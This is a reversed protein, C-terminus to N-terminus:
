QTEDKGMKKIKKMIRQRNNQFVTRSGFHFNNLYEDIEDLKIWFFNLIENNNKGSLLREVKVFPVSVVFTAVNVSREIVSNKRNLQPYIDDYFEEFAGYTEENFERWAADFITTDGTDINGGPFDYGVTFKRFQQCLLLCDNEKCYPIMGANLLFQGDLVYQPFNMQCFEVHTEYSSKDKLKIMARGRNVSANDSNTM